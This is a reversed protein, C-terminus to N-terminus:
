KAIVTKRMKMVVWSQGTILGNLMLQNGLDDSYYRDAIADYWKFLDPKTFTICNGKKSWKPEMSKEYKKKKKGM